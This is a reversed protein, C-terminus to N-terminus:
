VLELLVDGERRGVGILVLAVLHGIEILAENSVYLVVMSVLEFLELRVM